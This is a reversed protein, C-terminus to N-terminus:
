SHRMGSAKSSDGAGGGGWRERDQDTGLADSAKLQIQGIPPVLLHHSFLSIPTKRWLEPGVWTHLKPSSQAGGEVRKYSKHIGEGARGGRKLLWPPYPSGVEGNSTGPAGVGWVPSRLAWM